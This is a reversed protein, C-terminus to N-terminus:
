EALLEARSSFALSADDGSASKGVVRVGVVSTATPLSCTFREGGKLGAASTATTAPYDKLVVVTEWRGERTTQVQVRPQGASADFWCGNHLTTGQVFTVTKVAVPRAPTM